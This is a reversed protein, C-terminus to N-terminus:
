RAAAYLPGAWHVEHRQLVRGIVYTQLLHAARDEELPLSNLTTEPRSPTGFGHWSTRSTQQRAAPRTSPPVCHRSRCLSSQSHPASGLM